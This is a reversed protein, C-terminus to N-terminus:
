IEDSTWGYVPIGILSHIISATGYIAEAIKGVEVYEDVAHAMMEDGPGYGITPIGFETVLLSGATGMGLRTLRWTGTRVECDAASLANRAREILPHFPDTSWPPVVHRVTLQQGTFLQQPEERVQVDVVLDDCVSTVPDVGQRIRNMVGDVDEGPRLRHNLRIIAHHQTDEDDLSPPYMQWEENHGLTQDNDVYEQLQQFVAHATGQVWSSKGNRVHIDIEMWGDHGYYLGLKTPEGLIAYTPKIGLEPLTRELLTRVGVSHGNEEAVTATVVLSGQLPLLSQNLLAGAYIQSSLGAKCDSSGLGYLRDNVIHGSYPSQKWSGASNPLVTDLHCNLLVTPQSNQGDLIGIVNGYSDHMVRDYGVKEMEQEVLETMAGERLSPSPTQIMRQTFEIAEKQLRTNIGRMTTYM